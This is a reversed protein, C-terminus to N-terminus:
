SDADRLRPVQRSPYHRLATPRPATSTVLGLVPSGSDGPPFGLAPVQGVTGRGLGPLLRAGVRGGAALCGTLEDELLQLSIGDSILHDLLCRAYRVLTGSTDQYQLITVEWLPRGDRELRRGLMATAAARLDTLSEYSQWSLPLQVDPCYAARGGDSLTLSVTHLVDEREM